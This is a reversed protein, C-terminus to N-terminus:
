IASFLIHRTQFPLNFQIKYIKARKWIETLPNTQQITRNKPANVFNLFAVVLETMDTQRDTRGGIQAGEHFLEARVPRIKM